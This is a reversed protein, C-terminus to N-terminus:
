FEDRKARLKVEMVKVGKVAEVRNIAELIPQEAREMPRGTGDPHQVEFIHEGKLEGVPGVYRLRCHQDAQLANAIADPGSPSTVHVYSHGPELKPPKLAASMSLLCLLTFLHHLQIKAFTQNAFPVLPM